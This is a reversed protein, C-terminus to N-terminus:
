LKQKAQNQDWWTKLNPNIKEWLIGHYSPQKMEYAIIALAIFLGILFTLNLSPTDLYISCISLSTFISAWVFEPARRIRFTNCYLFFIFIVFTPIQAYAVEMFHYFYWSTIGLLLIFTDILNMRFGPHFGNNDDIKSETNM